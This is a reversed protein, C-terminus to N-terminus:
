GNDFSFHQQYYSITLNSFMLTNQQQLRVGLVQTEEGLHEQVVFRQVVVGVGEQEVDHTLQVNQAIVDHAVERFHTVFSSNIM